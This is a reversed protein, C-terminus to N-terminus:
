GEKVEISWGCKCTRKFYGVNTDAEITGTGNGITDCGCKPCVAWKKTYEILDFIDM